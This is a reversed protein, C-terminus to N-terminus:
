AGRKAGPVARWNTGARWLLRRIRDAVLWRITVPAEALSVPQGGHRLVPVGPAMVEVAWGPAPATLALRSDWVMTEGAPLAVDALREGGGRRGLVGGPDRSTRVAGGRVEFRAGALTGDMGAALRSALRAAAVPSPERTAGGVATAVVQLARIAAPATTIANLTVTDDLVRANAALWSAAATEADGADFAAPAEVEALRARARVRAYRTLANAPDEIWPVGADRLLTRLEARRWGLLPRALALDRGEPWVPCPSLAAMGAMGRPGSGAEARMLLTEDQDDATHGLFLATAGITRALRALAAYRATRAGAQATDPGEPWALRVIYPEAGLSAAIAAAQAADAESGARLAHDVIGAVLRRDQGRAVDALLVLLATSDGGGSAGVFILEGPALM